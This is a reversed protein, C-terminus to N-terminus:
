EFSGEMKTKYVITCINKDKCTFVVNFLGNKYKYALILEDKPKSFSIFKAKKIYVIEHGLAEECINFYMFGPLIPNKPFHAKFIPHEKNNLIIEFKDFDIKKCTFITKYM